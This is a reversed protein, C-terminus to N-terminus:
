PQASPDAIERYDIFVFFREYAPNATAESTSFDIFDHDRKGEDGFSEEFAGRAPTRDAACSTRRFDPPHALSFLRANKQFFEAGLMTRARHANRGIRAKVPERLAIRLVGTAASFGAGRAVAANVAREPPIHLQPFM